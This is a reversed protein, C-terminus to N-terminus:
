EMQPAFTGYDLQRTAKGLAKISQPADLPDLELEIFCACDNDAVAGLVDELGDETDVSACYVNKGPAFIRPLETYKWDAGDNYAADMGAIYREITYGRNGLLFIIPKLGRNLLTSLEQATMQFSGDGIFLICRRDKGATMAGLMAPLAFGIAGWIPQSIFMSGEPMKVTGMASLSCGNEAILIDGKTFFREMRQWLYEHSLRKGSLAKCTCTKNAEQPFVRKHMSTCPMEALRGTVEALAVGEYVEGNVTVRGEELYIVNARVFAQPTALQSAELFGPATIIFCDSRDVAEKVQESSMAGNYTGVFLPSNEPMCGKGSRFVAFPVRWEETFRCLNESLRRREVEMDAILMPYRSNGLIGGIRKLARELQEGNSKVPTLILKEDPVDIEMFSIDSPVQISVPCKERWCRILAHDTEIAANEPTLCTSYCTFQQLCQNINKFNGDALSHHMRLHGNMAHLPPVGSILVVPVHEACSGALGCLASLDGVGYTTLVAGMGNVRAYGDAAYAANLENCNGVFETGPVRKALELLPLNFDGPVGFIHLIGAQRMRTFLYEGITTKM